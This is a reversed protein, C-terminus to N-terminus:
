ESNLLSAAAARVQEVLLAFGGRRAIGRTQLTVASILQQGVEVRDFERLTGIPESSEDATSPYVLVTRNCGSARMFALSEYLDANSVVDRRGIRAKYKADFLYAPTEDQFLTLDPRVNVVGRARTGLPFPHQPAGRFERLARILIADCLQQWALWTPLVFGPGSYGGGALDLGLGELVLCSLDYTERWMAYRQPLPRPRSPSAGSPPLGDIVRSVLARTDSEGIQPLLTTLASRLVSNFHNKGTLELRHIEFGDPSPPALSEWDVDGDFSFERVVRSRYNRIPRRGNRLHGRLLARAVLTALDGRDETGAALDEHVLLRGTRVLITIFFLDQRWNEDGALFKPVVELEIANSLRLVGAIGDVRWTGSATVQVPSAELGLTTKLRSNLDAVQRLVTEPSTESAKAIAHTMGPVDSAEAIM